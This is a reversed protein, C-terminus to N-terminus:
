ISFQFGWKIKRSPYRLGQSHFPRTSWNRSLFPRQLKLLKLAWQLFEYRHHMLSQEKERWSWWIIVWCSKFNKSQIFAHSKEPPCGELYTYIFTRDPELFVIIRCWTIEQPTLFCFLSSFHELLNLLSLISPESSLLQLKQGVRICFRLFHAEEKCNLLSIL